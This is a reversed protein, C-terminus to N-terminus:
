TAGSLCPAGAVHCIEKINLDSYKKINKKWFDRPFQMGELM